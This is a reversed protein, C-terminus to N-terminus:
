PLPALGRGPPAAGGSHRESVLAVFGVIALLVTGALTAIAGATADAGSVSMSGLLTVFALERQGLAGPTIPMFTLLLIVPAVLLPGIAPGDTVTPVVTAAIAFSTLVEVAVSLALSVVIGRLDPEGAAHTLIPGIRPARALKERIASSGLGFPMAVFFLCVFWAIALGGRISGLVSGEGLGLDYAFTSVLGLTILGFSASARDVFIVVYSTM